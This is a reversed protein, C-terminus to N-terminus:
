DIQEGSLSWYFAVSKCFQDGNRYIQRCELPYIEMSRSEAAGTWSPWQCRHSSPPPSPSPPSLITDSESAAAGCWSLRSVPWLLSDSTIVSWQGSQCSHCLLPRGILIPAGRLHTLLESREKVGSNGQSSHSSHSNNRRRENDPTEAGASAAREPMM